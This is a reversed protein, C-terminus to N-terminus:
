TKRVAMADKYGGGAPNWPNQNTVRFIVSNSQDIPVSVESGAPNFSIKTSLCQYMRGYINFVNITTVDGMVILPWWINSGAVTRSMAGFSADNLGVEYFPCLFAATPSGAFTNASRICFFAGFIWFGDLADAATRSSNGIMWANHSTQSEPSEDLMVAYMGEPTAGNLWDLVIHFQGCYYNIASGAVAIQCRRTLTRGQGDTLTFALNTASVRVYSITFQRGSADAPSQFTQTTSGVTGATRTYAPFSTGAVLLLGLNDMITQVDTVALDQRYSVNGTLYPPAM